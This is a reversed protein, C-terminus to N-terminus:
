WKAATDALRQIKSKSEQAERVLRIVQSLFTDNGIRNVVMHFAGEGNVSGGIVEDGTHKEAPASEGTIMSENVASQGQTIKGDIPIKEGPKVLLTDGAKLSNVPVDTPEDAKEILHATDPMLQALEELAM